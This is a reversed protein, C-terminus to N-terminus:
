HVPEAVSEHNQTNGQERCGLVPQIDV